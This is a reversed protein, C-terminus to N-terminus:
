RWLLFDAADLANDPQRDLATKATSDPRSLGLIAEKVIQASAASSARTSFLLPGNSAPIFNGGEWAIVNWAYNTQGTLLPPGSFATQNVGTLNRMAIPNGQINGNADTLFLAFTMSEANAPAGWQFTIPGADLLARQAPYVLNFPTIRTVVFPQWGGENYRGGYGRYGAYVRWYYNQGRNLDTFGNYTHSEPELWGTTGQYVVLKEGPRTPHDQAVDVRYDTALHSPSWTFTPRTSVGREGHGPDLPLFLGVPITRFGYAANIARLEEGPALAYARWDFFSNERLGPPGFTYSTGTTTASFFYNANEQSAGRIEIRYGTAGASETWTFTPQLDVWLSGTDPSVQLFDGLQSYRFKLPSNTALRTTYASTFATVYIWYDKTLPLGAQTLDWALASVPGSVVLPSAAPVGGNDEFIQVVYYSANLSQSWQLTPPTAHRSGSLPWVISFTGPQPPPTIDFKKRGGSNVTSAWANSATVEWWYSTSWSLAPGDYTYQNTTLAASRYKTSGPEGQADDFLEVRYSTAGSAAQWTFHPTLESVVEEHSPAYLVFSSPPFVTQVNQTWEGLPLLAENFQTANLRWTIQAETNWNSPWVRFRFTAKKTAEIRKTVSPYPSLGSVFGCVSDSNEAPEVTWNTPVGKAEVTICDTAGTNKVTLAVESFVGNLFQNQSAFEVEASKQAKAGRPAAALGLCLAMLPILAETMGRFPSFPLRGASPRSIENRM